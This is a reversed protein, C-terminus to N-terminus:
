YIYKCQTRLFKNRLAQENIPLSKYKEQIISNTGQQLLNEKDSILKPYYKNNEFDNILNSNM